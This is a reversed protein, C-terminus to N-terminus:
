LNYYNKELELDVLRIKYENAQRYSGLEVHIAYQKELILIIKDLTKKDLGETNKEM